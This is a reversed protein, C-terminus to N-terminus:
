AASDDTGLTRLADIDVIVMRRYRPQILGRLRLNQIAKQVTAEAIGIMTALEPQSLKVGLEVGDATQRGCTDAIDVLLRALKVHAPYARFDTRRRNAWRLQQVVTAAIRVAVEPHRRLVRQFEAHTIVRSNVWGCATVTANRAQGTLASMEGVLDGPLRFSLLAEAGAVVTTVKVIGRVLLEVHTNHEGERILVRGPEFRRLTGLRLLEGVTPPSLGALFTGPPWVSAPNPVGRQVAVGERDAGFSAM